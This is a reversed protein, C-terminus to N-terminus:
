ISSMNRLLIRHTDKVKNLVSLMVLLGRTLDANGLLYLSFYEEQLVLQVQTSLM